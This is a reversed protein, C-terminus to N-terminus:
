RIGTDIDIDLQTIQDKFIEIETPLDAAHDIGIGAIDIQYRGVPLIVHYTGDANIPVRAIERRGSQSLVLIKRATFVEPRPTPEPVGVRVAPQLPGITVDGTLVGMDKPLSACAGLLLFVALMFYRKIM